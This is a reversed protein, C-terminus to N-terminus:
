AHAFLGRWTTKSSSFHSVLVYLICIHQVSSFLTYYTVYAYVHNIKQASLAHGFVMQFVLSIWVIIIIGACVPTVGLGTNSLMKMMTMM